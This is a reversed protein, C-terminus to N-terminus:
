EEWVLSAVGVIIALLYAPRASVIEASAESAGQILLLLYSSAVAAM